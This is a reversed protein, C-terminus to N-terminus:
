SPSASLFIAGFVFFVLLLGYVVLSIWSLVIGAVALGRGGLAGGSSDIRNKAQYGFVLGPISLIIPCLILSCIGLILSTTAAGATPRPAQWQGQAQPNTPPPWVGQGGSQWQGQQGGGQWSPREPEAERQGGGGWPPSEQRGGEPRRHGLPDRQRAEEDEGGQGGEDLPSGSKWQPQWRAPEGSPQRWQPNTDEDGPVGPISM